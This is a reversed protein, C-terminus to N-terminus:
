SAPRQRAYLTEGTKLSKVLVGWYGHELAPQALLADIDRVLPAYPLLPPVPLHPLDPLLRRAHSRRTACGLRARM